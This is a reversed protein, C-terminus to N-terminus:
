KKGQWLMALRTLTLKQNVNSELAKEAELLYALRNKLTGADRDKGNALGEISRPDYLHEDSGTLAFIAADRLTDELDRLRSILEVRKLPAWSLFLAGADKKALENLLFGRSKWKAAAALQRARALSGESKKSVYEAEAADAGEKELARRIVERPIPRLRVLMCRSRITRLVYRPHATLLLLYSSSPPEELLKLMANGAETTLREADILAAAKARGEFPKLATWELLERIESIGISRKATDEGFWRLDAHQNAAIKRCAPCECSDSINERECLLLRAFLSALTKKGWGEGGTFLFSHGLSGDKKM